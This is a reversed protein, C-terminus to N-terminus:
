PTPCPHALAAHTLGFFDTGPVDRDELAIVASPARLCIAHALDSGHSALPAHWLSLSGAASVTFVAEGSSSFVADNFQGDAESVSGVFRLTRSDWFRATGDASATLIREGDPSFDIASIRRTHGNLTGRVAGSSVDWVWVTMDASGVALMREDPSMAIATVPGTVGQYRVIKNTELDWTSATNDDSGAMLYRMSPSFRLTGVPISHTADYHLLTGDLANWVRISGDDSGAAVMAGGRSLAASDIWGGMGHLTLLNRGHLLDRVLLVDPPVSIAAILLGRGPQVDRIYGGSVSAIRRAALRSPDIAAVSTDDTVGLLVRGAMRLRTPVGSISIKGGLNLAGINWRRVSLGDDTVVANGDAASFAVRIVPGRAPLTMLKTGDWADYVVATQNDYGVVLRRGDRSFVADLVAAREGPIVVPAGGKLDYIESEDTTGVKQLSYLLAIKRSDPSVVYRAELSWVKPDLQRLRKGTSSSWLLAAGAPDTSLIFRDDDSYALFRLPQHGDSELRRMLAGSRADFVMPAASDRPIAVVSNGDSSISASVTQSPLALTADKRWPAVNWVQLTHLSDDAIVLRACDPSFQRGVLLVGPITAISPKALGDTRWVSVKWDSSITALYRGNRCFAAFPTESGRLSFRVPRPDPRDLRYVAARNDGSVVLARDGSPAMLLSHTDPPSFEGMLRNSFSAKVAIAEAQPSTVGFWGAIRSPLATRALALATPTDDAAYAIEASNALAGTQAALAYHTGTLALIAAMAVVAVAAATRTRQQKADRRVLDDLSELSLLAAVVRLFEARSKRAESRWDIWLPEAPEATITGDDAVEFRLARPLAELESSLGKAEANPTGGIVVALINKRRGLRVFDTIEKEVWASVAARPSCVVVLFESLRLADRVRETLSPGPVMEDEDRFVPRLPRVDRRLGPSVLRLASPLVYRELLRHLHVAAERDARNYSIFARYRFHRSM